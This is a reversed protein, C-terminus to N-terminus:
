NNKNNSIILDYIQGKPTDTLLSLIKSTDKTSYNNNLLIKAKDLLSEDNENLKEVKQAKIILTIEGKIQKSSYFEILNELTDTKFEEYYKTLERAVTANRNGLLEKIEKLTNLLRSPSEYIIINSNKYESIVQEKTKNDKPLFGIFTFEPIETACASMATIAANAGPIPTVKINNESALKLLEFGPDSILPTGADSTLAINKGELLLDIIYKGKHKESFKHYSTLKTKIEFHNLLKQTVRTDECAIMDVEKLIRIARLTMDELNGIPTPCIYLIGSNNM